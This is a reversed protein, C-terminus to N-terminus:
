RNKQSKLYDAITSGVSGEIRSVSSRCITSLMNATDSLESICQCAGELDCVGIKLSELNSWTVNEMKHAATPFLIPYLNGGPINYEKSISRMNLEAHGSEYLDNVMFYDIAHRLEQLSGQAMLYARCNNAADVIYPHLELTTGDKAVIIMSLIMIEMACRNARSVPVLCDINNMVIEHDGACRSVRKFNLLHRPGVNDSVYNGGYSGCGLTMSPSVGFNYVGGIGGPATPQNILCRTVIVTDAFRSIRSQQTYKNTYFCATHGEGGLKLVKVAAKFLEDVTPCKTFGLVPSLKERAFPSEDIDEFEGVLLTTSEPVDIGAMAAIKTPSQGVVAANLAGGDHFLLDGVKARDEETLFYAGQAIFEEKLMDYISDEAIVVQESSCIVGYDFNKSMVVNEAVEHLNAYSDVVVPVNGPGVGVAPHGSSYAAKVMAPGGTALILSVSPHKMLAGTLDISPHSMCAAIDAPAGASVAGEIMLRLAETTCKKARPHPAVIIANRTKLCCLAKFAVTSTPNTTPIVAAVVGMPSAVVDVDNAEDREVVGCTKEHRYWKRVYDVAFSNKAEKHAPIGMGTEDHASQGLEKAHKMFHDCAAEVIFNVKSQSFTAFVAQAAVLRDMGRDLEDVSLIDIIEARPVIREEPKLGQKMPQQTTDGKNFSMEQNTKTTPM